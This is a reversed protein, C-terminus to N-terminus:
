KIFIVRQILSSLLLLFEAKKEGRGTIGAAPSRVSDELRQPYQMDCVCLYIYM